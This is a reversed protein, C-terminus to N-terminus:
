GAGPRLHFDSWFLHLSGACPGDQPAERRLHGLSGIGRLGSSYQGARHVARRRDASHRPALLQPRRGAAIRKCFGDLACIGQSPRAASCAVVLHGSGALCLRHPFLGLDLGVRGGSARLHGFVLDAPHWTRCVSSDHATTRLVISSLPPNYQSLPDHTPPWSGAQAVTTEGCSPEPVGSARLIPASREFAAQRSVAASEMLLWVDPDFRVAQPPAPLTWSFRSRARDVQVSHRVEPHEGELRVAVDLEFIFPRLNSEQLLTLELSRSEADYSWSGQLKPHGARRLWQQFFWGMKLGSQEEVVAQFDASLANGDRFRRYFEKLSAWFDEEGLHRRLMHLVWAGKQYSNPSLLRNLNRISSDIVASEPRRRAYQVVRRRSQAMTEALRRRGYRHELYLAALYTAFGESLWVHHWDAESVSDGFWQHAIEHAILSENRPASSAAGNSFVNEAYFISGANEMGGFRTKSQVNALKAYPFPGLRSEFFEVIRRAQALDRFAARRDEPYAWSQIPIQGRPTDLHQVAFRAVGIVMVKSALPAATRWHTRRRGGALSSQEQLAGNAVVQYHDPATVVFECTAKDYPHDIVPLWHRARDPWNDGFFTRQGYKNNSIILGDGPVGRYDVQFRRQRGAQTPEQLQISLRQARHTFRSARGEEQVATVTMGKASGVEHGVLDLHLVQSASSLFQVTLLTRGVIEDSDDSLQLEFRYHLVDVSPQRPYSDATGLCHASGLLILVGFVLYDQIRVRFLLM